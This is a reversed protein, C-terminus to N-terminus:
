LTRNIPAKASLGFDMNCRKIWKRRTQGMRTLFSPRRSKPPTV